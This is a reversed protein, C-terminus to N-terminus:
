SEGRTLRKKTQEQWTNNTQNYDDPRKQLDITARVVDIDPKWREIPGDIRRGGEQRSLYGGLAYSLDGFREGHQQRSKTTRAREWGRCSVLFQPISETLGCDFAAIESAKFNHLYEKLLTKGTRLQKLIAAEASTLQQYMEASKGLHLSADIKGL